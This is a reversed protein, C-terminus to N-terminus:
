QDNKSNAQEQEKLLLALARGTMEAGALPSHARHLPITGSPNELLKIVEPIEATEMSFQTSDITITKTKEDVKTVIGTRKIPRGDSNWISDKRYTQLTLASSDLLPPANSFDPKTALANLQSIVKLKKLNVRSLLLIPGYSRSDPKEATLWFATYNKRDTESEIQPIPRTVELPGSFNLSSFQASCRDVCGVSLIVVFLLFTPKHIM